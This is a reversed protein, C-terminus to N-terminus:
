NGTLIRLFEKSSNEWTKNKLQDQANDLLKQLEDGHEYYYELKNVFDVPSSKVFVMSDENFFSPASGDAFEVVPLGSAIMEYPVLSINTFSAVVGIDCTSYIKILEDHGLKGMNKGVPIKVEKNLGFVYIEVCIGKERFVRELLDLCQFILIYGRKPDIKIYVAVKLKNDFNIKKRKIAYQNIEVPFEVSDVELPSSVSKKIQAANWSGLSIMHYGFRYTNLALYYLDGVPYFGPEFDQIFYAKYSFNSRNYLSYATIWGTAIGIDFERTLGEKDLIEGKFGPLNLKANRQMTKISSEGCTIYYVSHGMSSIYTGLRLISTHGGSFAPLDPIIFAISYTEKSVLSQRLCSEDQLAMEKLINFSNISDKLMLSHKYNEARNRIAATVKSLVRKFV